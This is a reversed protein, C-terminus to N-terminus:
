KKYQYLQAFTKNQLEKLAVFINFQSELTKQIEVALVSNMGLEPLTLTLNENELKEISLINAIHNIIDSNTSSKKTAISATIIPNSQKMLSDLSDLYPKVNFQSTEGNEDVFDSMTTIKDFTKRQIMLAPLNNAKRTECIRKLISESVGDETMSSFTIFYELNSCLQRSLRDFHIATMIKSDILGNQKQSIESLDFIGAVSGLSNARKLINQVGKEQTTNENLIVVNIGNLRSENIKYLQYGNNINFPSCLIINQAGHSILWELLELESGTSDGIIIYSKNKKCLVRSTAETCILSPTAKFDDEENRIKIIVKGPNKGVAMFRFASEIQNAQFVTRQIPKIIGRDIMKQMKEQLKSTIGNQKCIIEDLHICHFTIDNIFHNLELLNNEMMDFKGLEFFHGSVGLCRVSAQLKQGSLNNLVVDVGEGNTLERIIKEFSLDSNNLIHSEPIQPFTKRIFPKQKPNDVTTFIECKNHLCINIAAQSIDETGRHILVSDGEKLQIKFFLAWIVICYIVPITAAEELSMNDPVIWTYGPLREVMTAIGKERVIGMIRRGNVDKGSYEIGQFGENFRRDNSLLKPPSIGVSTLIDYFNVSSYYVHVFSPRDSNNTKSIDHVDEHWKFSSLDACRQLKCSAHDVQVNKLLHLKLNRYSGWQGDKYVNHSLNKDLQSKYFQNELSFSPANKDMIYFCQSRSGQKKQRFNNFFGLIASLPEKEAYIILREGRKAKIENNYSNNDLKIARFINKHNNMKSLLLFRENSNITQSSCVNFGHKKIYSKNCFTDRAIIFGDNKLANSIKYSLNQINSIIILSCSQDDPLEGTSIKVHQVNQAQTLNISNVLLNVDTDLALDKMTEVIVTSILPNHLKCEQDLIEYTKLKMSHETSNEVAIQIFIRIVEDLNAQKDNIYPVFKYKELLLDTQFPRCIVERDSWGCIQIGGSCLLDINPYYNVLFEPYEKNLTQRIEMHKNVDIIIKRVFTPVLPKHSRVYLAKIQTMTHMFTIYNDCWLAKGSTGEFNAEAVKKFLGEYHYGKSKLVKYFDENNLAPSYTESVDNQCDTVNVVEKDIFQPIRAFGTVVVTGNEAVEFSNTGLHVTVHFKVAGIKPINTGREFRVNEFIVPVTEINKKQMKAITEWILGLYGLSPYLNRGDIFHDKIYKFCDKQPNVIIDQVGTTAYESDSIGTYWKEDHQWKILPSIMPTSRSVPFEVEPYINSLKPNCGAEYMIGLSNLFFEVGNEHNRLAFPINEVTAPLTRKLIANLLGHPAIEIAIANEPIHACSEEFYVPSLLNNTYYEASSYKIKETNWEHELASTCIWKDSRLKPEPILKELHSILAPAASSIYRSHYAINSTNVERVFINKDQLEKIFEKIKETPGSITCSTSSNHCAIDIEPPVIDKLTNYGQGVAAMTGHIFETELSVLGRYYAALITQEATFCEDAYACGLEGVSHGIIKDAKVDLIRLVDIMAIQIAAIGVFSNLINDFVKPDDNTLIEILDMGKAKLIDHSKRISKEFVPIKMLSKGMAPWQSGMGSFVFWIPRKEGSSFKKSKVNEKNNNIIVYGRQVHGSIDESFVEHILRIYEVDTHNKEVDNLIYDLAEETRGSVTVLRPLDDDIVANNIKKEKKHPALLIHGNAGGLGFSNIAFYEGELPIPKTVVELQGNQLGKICPNPNKYHLNPPIMKEEFSVIMKALSCIGSAAEAHGMNSNVSGIKLSSTRNACFFEQISTAEAEDGLQIGVAHAELYAVLSPDINIEKYFQHYLEQQLKESPISIGRQEFDFNTKSHVIKAYIRRADKKKQLFAVVVAEARTLGNGDADFPKCVGEPSLMEREYVTNPPKLCLNPTCVIAGECVETQILKYAHDIAHLSSSSASELSFSPGNVDLWYSIRNALMFKQAGLASSAHEYSGNADMKIGSDGVGCIVAIRKGKLQSPNYGADVIAEFTRELLFRSGVPMGEAHTRNLRFFSHDFRDLSKLAGMKVPKNDDTNWRNVLTTMDKGAFLNEKFETINNSNPFVGSIGSIVIEESRSIEFTPTQVTM